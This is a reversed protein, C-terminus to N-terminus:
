LKGFVSEWKQEKYRKLAAALKNAQQHSQNSM